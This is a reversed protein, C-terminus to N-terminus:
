HNPPAVSELVGAKTQEWPRELEQSIEEIRGTIDELKRRQVWARGQLM